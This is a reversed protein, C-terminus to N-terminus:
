PLAELSSLFPRRAVAQSVRVLLDSFAMAGLKGLCRSSFEPLVNCFFRLLTAKITRISVSDINSKLVYGVRNYSHLGKHSYNHLAGIHVNGFGGDFGRSVWKLSGKVSVM